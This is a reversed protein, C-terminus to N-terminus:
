KGRWILGNPKSGVAITTIPTSTAVDIVSLTGATQNTIYARSGDGSFAIAHAGPGTTLDGLREDADPKYFVVKGNDADTVWLRGDPGVAAMAPTFGLDYVLLVNRTAADIATLSKSMENDVYMVNNSGPWAGVPGDGVPVTGLINKTAVDIVTVDNSGNNTVFAYLGDASFSVELPTKGVAITRRIQLTSPDLVLVTGQDTAQCTWIESGDPSYIANHNSAACRRTRQTAGTTADIMMIAGMMDSGMMQGGHGGHGGSLDMGPVAVLMSGHDGSMSIHHPYDANKLTITGAVENTGTNVVSISNSGGNVVWLADYAIPAIAVSSPDDSSGQTMQDDSCAAFLFTALVATSVSGFLKLM